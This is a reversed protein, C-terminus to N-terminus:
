NSFITDLSLCPVLDEKSWKPINGCRSAKFIPPLTETAINSELFYIGGFSWCTYNYGPTNVYLNTKSSTIFIM